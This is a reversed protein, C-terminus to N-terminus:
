RTVSTSPTPEGATNSSSRPAPWRWSGTTRTGKDDKVDVFFHAHPNTWELKTVVGKLTVPKSADYEGAFSHHASVAPAAVAFGVGAIVIALHAKMHVM